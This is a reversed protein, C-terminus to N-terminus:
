WRGPCWSEPEEEVGRRVAGRSAAGSSASEVKVKDLAVRIRAAMDALHRATADDGAAAAGKESRGALGTLEARALAPLDSLPDNSDLGGVLLDVHARQLNRRYLDIAPKSSDLESWIGRTVDAM